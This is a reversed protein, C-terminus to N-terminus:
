ERDTEVDDGVVTYEDFFAVAEADSEDDRERVRLVGESDSYIDRILDITM